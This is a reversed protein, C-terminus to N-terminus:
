KSSRLSLLAHAAAHEEMGKPPNAVIQRYKHYFTPRPMPTLNEERFRERVYKFMALPNRGKFDSMESFARRIILEHDRTYRNYVRERKRSQKHASKELFLDKENEELSDHPAGWTKSDLRRTSELWSAILSEDLAPEFLGLSSKLRSVAEPASVQPDLSYIKLMQSLVNSLVPPPAGSLCGMMTFSVIMMVLKKRLWMKVVVFLHSYSM